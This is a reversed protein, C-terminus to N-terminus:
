RAFDSGTPPTACSTRPWRTYRGHRNEKPGGESGHVPQLVIGDPYGSRFQEWVWRYFVDMRHAMYKVLLFAYGETKKPNMGMTLLWELCMVRHHRYDTIQCQNLREKIPETIISSDELDVM